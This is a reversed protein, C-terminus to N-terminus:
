QTSQARARVAHDFEYLRFGAAIDITTFADLTRTNRDDDYQEDTWRVAGSLWSREREWRAELGAQHEPVQAPELGELMPSVDAEEVKADTLLYYARLTLDDSAQLEVECEIGRVDVRDLNLRQAGSGGPPIFGWPAVSAGGGVLTVNAVADSIRNYFLNASLRCTPTIEWSAGIDVGDIREPDLEANPETIDNGVRFPRFLENLTPFRSGRFASVKLLWADSPAWQLAARWAPETETRSSFSEDRAIIGLDLDRERRDGDYRLHDGRVATHILLSDHMQWNHAAFVGSIWQTGGASRARTFGLGLNRYREHTTGDVRRSDVGFALSHADNLQLTLRQILGYASSPVDHQDLAIRESMRDAAVASFTSEFRRQQTFLTLEAAIDVSDYLLRMSGDIGESENETLRTGNGRQESYASGSFALSWNDSLRQQLGLDFGAIDGYARQDVAGRQGDKLVDFGDSDIGFAAGFLYAGEGISRGFALTGAGDDINGTRVDAVTFPRMSTHLTQLAVTGGLTTFGWPNVGGERVVSAAELTVPQVRNWIVWGGFPDNLPIGDRLVLTRSAGSPGVNRLSVGQTTPHGGISGTRRFLRFGPSGALIDDIRSQPALELDIRDFQTGALGANQWDLPM